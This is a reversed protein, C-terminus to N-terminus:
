RVQPSRPARRPRRIFGPQAARSATEGLPEDILAAVRSPLESDLGVAEIRDASEVGDLQEGEDVGGPFGRVQQADAAVPEDLRDLIALHEVLLGAPM